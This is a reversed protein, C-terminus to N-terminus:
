LIDGMENMHYNGIVTADTYCHCFNLPWPLVTKRWEKRSYRRVFHIKITFNDQSGM